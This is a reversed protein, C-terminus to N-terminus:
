RKRFVLIYEENALGDRSRIRERSRNRRIKEFPETFGANTMLACMRKVVGVQRGKDKTEGIVVCFFRGPQLASSIVDICTEMSSFYDQVAGKRKRKFRAGIEEERLGDVSLGLWWHSLRQSRTYDTVNPYPPSTVILDVSRNPVVAGRLLNARVVEARKNLDRIPVSRVEPFALYKEFAEQLHALEELYQAVADEYVLVRPVMNDAVYGWHNRQSCCRKAIHSFVADFVTRIRGHEADILERIALMQRWTDGHYWPKLISYKDEISPTRSTNGSAFLPEGHELGYKDCSEFIRDRLRKCHKRLTAPRFFTIKAKTVMTAIANIDTGIARRGLRVAEVLCTGVGCFPDYVTEGKRSLIEILYAPIQPIFTGPYWHLRHLGYSSLAGHFDWDVSRLHKAITADHSNCM